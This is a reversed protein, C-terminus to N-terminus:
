ILKSENEGVAIYQGEAASSSECGGTADAVHRQGDIGLESDLTDLFTV